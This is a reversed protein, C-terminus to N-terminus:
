KKPILKNIILAYLSHGTWEAAKEDISKLEILILFSGTIELFPIDRIFLKECMYAVFIFIMSAGLKYATKWLRDSRIEKKNKLCLLLRLLLDAFIFLGISGIWYFTPFLFTYLVVMLSGIYELIFPLKSKM